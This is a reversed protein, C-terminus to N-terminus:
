ETVDANTPLRVQLHHIRVFIGCYRFILTSSVLAIRLLQQIFEHIIKQLISLGKLIICLIICFHYLFLSNKDKETHPHCPLPPISQVSAQNIPKIFQSAHETVDITKARRVQLYLLAIITGNDGVLWNAKERKYICFLYDFM